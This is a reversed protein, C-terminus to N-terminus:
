STRFTPDNALYEFTSEKELEEAREAQDAHLHGTQGDLRFLKPLVHPTPENQSAVEKDPTTQVSRLDFEGYTDIKNTMSRREECAMIKHNGSDGFQREEASGSASISWSSAASMLGAAYDPVGKMINEDERKTEIVDLADM